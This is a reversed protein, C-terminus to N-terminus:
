LSIHIRLFLNWFDFELNWFPFNWIGFRVNEFKSILVNYFKNGWRAEYVKNECVDYNAVIILFM